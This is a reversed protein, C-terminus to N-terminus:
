LDRYVMRYVANRGGAAELNEAAAVKSAWYDITKRVETLNARTLSRSGIQYSQGTAIAAEAELWLSLHEQAIKKTIVAM